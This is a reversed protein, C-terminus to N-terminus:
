PFRPFTKGTSRLNASFLLSYTVRSVRQRSAPGGETRTSYTESWTRVSSVHREDIKRRAFDIALQHVVTWTQASLGCIQLPDIVVCPLILLALHNGQCRIGVPGEEKVKKGEIVARNTLEFGSKM